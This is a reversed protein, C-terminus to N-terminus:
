HNYNIILKKREKENYKRITEKTNKIGLIDGIDKAKYLPQKNTGYNIIKINNFEM